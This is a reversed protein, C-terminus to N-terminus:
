WSSHEGSHESLKAQFHSQKKRNCNDHNGRGEHNRWDLVENYLLEISCIYGTSGCGPPGEDIYICRGWSLENDREDYSKAFLTDHKFEVYKNLRCAACITSRIRLTRSLYDITLPMPHLTM